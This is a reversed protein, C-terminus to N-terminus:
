EYKAKGVKFLKGYFEIEKLISRFLVKLKM